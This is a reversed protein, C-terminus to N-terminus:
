GMVLCGTGVAPVGGVEDFTLLCAARLQLGTMHKRELVELDVSVDQHPFRVRACFQTLAPHRLLLHQCWPRFALKLSLNSFRCAVSDVEAWYQQM